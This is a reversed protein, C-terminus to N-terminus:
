RTRVEHPEVNFYPRLFDINGYVNWASKAREKGSQWMQFVCFYLSGGKCCEENNVPNGCFNLFM